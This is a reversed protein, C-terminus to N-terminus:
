FMENPERFGENLGRMDVPVMLENDDLDETSGDLVMAEFTLEKPDLMKNKKLKERASALASKVVYHIVLGTGKIEKKKRKLKM